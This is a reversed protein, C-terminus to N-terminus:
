KPKNGFLGRAQLGAGTMAPIAIKSTAPSYLGRAALMQAEPSAIIEPGAVGMAMGAIAGPIGGEKYGYAGGAGAGVLAGTHAGFRGISRQVFGANLDKATARQAVPMLTSIQSNLARYQPIAAELEPHLAHQTADVARNSFDTATAPNWSTKLDGVGRKLALGESPSVYQPIPTSGRSDLQKGIMGVAKKTADNNRVNATSLFSDATDRAPKLNVPVNSQRAADDLENSFLGVKKSAQKAIKGPGFGTTENLIAEGPTRGYARDAGRIGMAGEAISPAAAKLGMGFLGGAAGAAAGGAFSGGQATNVTGAGLAQAGLKAVPAAYKGLMPLKSAAFAAGKEEAAGPILFEGAQEVGRGISQATNHPVAMAQATQMARQSNEPTAAQGLPTTLFNGVGPIKSALNDASSMTHIAGKAAGKAFNQLMGPDADRGLMSPQMDVVPAAPQPTGLEGAGAVPGSIPPTPGASEIREGTQPDIQPASTIREGTKPDIQIAM